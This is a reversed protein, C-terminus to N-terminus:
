HYEQNKLMYDVVSFTEFWVSSATSDSIVYVSMAQTLKELLVIISFCIAEVFAVMVQVTLAM